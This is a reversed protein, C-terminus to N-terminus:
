TNYKCMIIHDVFQCRQSTRSWLTVGRDLWCISVEKFDKIVFQCERLTFKIDSGLAYLLCARKLWTVLRQDEGMSSLVVWCSEPLAWYRCRTDAHLWAMDLHVGTHHSCFIAVYSMSKLYQFYLFIYIFKIFQLLNLEEM